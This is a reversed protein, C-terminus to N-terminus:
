AVGCGDVLHLRPRLPDLLDIGRLHAAAVAHWRPEHGVEDRQAAVRGVAQRAGLPDALLRGGLEQLPVSRDLRREVGPRALPRRTYGTRQAVAALINEVELGDRSQPRQLYSTRGVTVGVEGLTRSGRAGATHLLERRAEVTRARSSSNILSVSGPSFM